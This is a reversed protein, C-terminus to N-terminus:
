RSINRQFRKNVPHATLQDIESKKFFFKRGGAQHFPILGKRKQQLITEKHVGWYEALQKPTFHEDELSQAPKAVLLSDLSKQISAVQNSLNQLSESLLEFPNLM